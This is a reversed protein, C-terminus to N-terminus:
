PEGSSAPIKRFCLPCEAEVPCVGTVPLLAASDSASEEECPRSHLYAPRGMGAVNCIWTQKRTERGRDRMLFSGSSRRQGAPGGSVAMVPASTPTSWHLAPQGYLNESAATLFCRRGRPPRGAHEWSGAPQPGPEPEGPHMQLTLVRSDASLGSSRPNCCSPTHTPPLPPFFCSVPGPLM